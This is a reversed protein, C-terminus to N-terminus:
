KDKPLRGIVWGSDLLEKLQPEKVKRAKGSIPNHIAKTGKQVASKKARAETTGLAKKMTASQKAKQEVTVPNDKFRKQQAASQKAREEHDEYRKKASASMKTKQEVTVPNDKFRKQQAATYNARAETTSQAAVMKARYEPDEYRKKQAVSQVIANSERLRAYERAGIHYSREQKGSKWYCFLFAAIKLGGENPYIEVLLKHIIFHERATLRVLNEPSNNGGLCKPIIHHNETYGTPVRNKAQDIINDHIRRYDM